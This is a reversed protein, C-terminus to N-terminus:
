SRGERWRATIGASTYVRGDKVYVPDRELAIKPYQQGLRDCWEWHTVARKGDLLGARALVFAGTCIAGVRRAQLGARALWRVFDPECRGSEAGVGGAVLM